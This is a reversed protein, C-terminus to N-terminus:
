EDERIRGLSKSIAEHKELNAIKEGRILYVESLPLGKLVGRKELLRMVEALQTYETISARIWHGHKALTAAEFNGCISEVRESDCIRGGDSLPQVLNEFRCLGHHRCDNCMM